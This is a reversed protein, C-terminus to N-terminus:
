KEESTGHGEGEVGCGSLPQGSKLPEGDVGGQVQVEVEALEPRRLDGPDDLHEVERLPLDHRAPARVHAGGHGRREVLHPGLMQGSLVTKVLEEIRRHLVKLETRAQDREAKLAEWYDRVARFTALLEKNSVSPPAGDGICWGEIRAWARVAAVAKQELEESM